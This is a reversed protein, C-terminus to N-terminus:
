MLMSPELSKKATLAFVSALIIFYTKASNLAYMLAWCRGVAEEPKLGQKQHDFFSYGNDRSM